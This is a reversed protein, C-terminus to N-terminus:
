SAPSGTPSVVLHRIMLQTGYRSNVRLMRRSYCVNRCWLSSMLQKWTVLSSLECYIGLVFNIWEKGAYKIILWMGLLAVSGFIPIILTDGWTLMEDMSNEDDYAEDEDPDPISQKAKLRAQKLRKTSEPTQDNLKFYLVCSNASRSLNSHDWSWHSPRKYWSRPM